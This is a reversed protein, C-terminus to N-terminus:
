PGYFNWGDLYPKLNEATPDPPKPMTLAGRLPDISAIRATCWRLWTQAGDREEGEAMTRVTTDMAAVYSRVLAGQPWAQSQSTLTDRRHSEILLRKAQEMAAEWRRRKEAAAHEAKRLARADELARVELEWLVDPLREELRARSGDSFLTPRGDRNTGRAGLSVSLRGTPVFTNQRVEQWKPLKTRRLYDHRQGGKGPAEAILLGYTFDDISVEIQGRDLSRRFEAHMLHPHSIASVIHGRRAAEAALGQLIRLARGLRENTVMHRDSDARYAAVAPHPKVLHQPVPVPGRQVRLAFNEEL